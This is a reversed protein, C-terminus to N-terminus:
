QLVSVGIPWCDELLQSVLQYSPERRKYLEAELELNGSTIAAVYDAETDRWCEWALLYRALKVAVNPFQSLYLITSNEM